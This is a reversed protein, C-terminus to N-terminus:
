VNSGVDLHDCPHKAQSVLHEFSHPACEVPQVACLRNEICLSLAQKSATAVLNPFLHALRYPHECPIPRVVVRLPRDLPKRYSVASLSRTASRCFRASPFNPFNKPSVSPTM